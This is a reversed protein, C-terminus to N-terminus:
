RADSLTGRSGCARLADFPLSVSDTATGLCSVANRVGGWYGFMRAGWAGFWVTHAVFDRLAVEVGLVEGVEPPAEVALRFLDLPQEGVAAEALPAVDRSEFELGPQHVGGAVRGRLVIAEQRLEVIGKHHRFQRGVVDFQVATGARIPVIVSTKRSQPLYKRPEATSPDTAAVHHIRPSHHQVLM